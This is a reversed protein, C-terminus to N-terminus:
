QAPRLNAVATLVEAPEARTTYNPDVHAWSIRGARDIVFTAPVPLDWNEAGNLSPLDAGFAAHLEQEASTMSFVVGYSRAVLNNPDSLVDFGLSRSESTSRNSTGTQPSIAALSAGAAEFQPLMAQYARLELDCFPCWQGRFFTVIVPGKALLGPLSVTRGSTNRLTFEPASQGVKVANRGIGDSALREIFAGVKRMMEPPVKRQLESMLTQIDSQLTM